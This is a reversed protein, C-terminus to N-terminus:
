GSGGVLSLFRASAAPFQGTMLRHAADKADLEFYIAYAVPNAGFWELMKEVYYPNDGGGLDDSYRLAVGWEPFSMPKGHAKAFAAHWALGYRTNVQWAWREEPKGLLSSPAGDYADLGVYDVYADGPWAAEVDANTNAALPSWDFRFAQGPISRLVTVIRRWYAAFAAEKGGAAWHYFRGNFEWGLRLVAGPCGRAVLTRGFRDWHADYAGAAGEALTQASTPLIAVSLVLQWRTGAWRNCWWSPDDIQAWPDTAGEPMGGVYDLVHTVPRGLWSEYAQVTEHGQWRRFVGLPPGASGGPGPERVSAVAIAVVAFLGALM